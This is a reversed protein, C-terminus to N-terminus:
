QFLSATEHPAYGDVIKVSGLFPTLIVSMEQGDEKGLHIITPEIYGNKNFRIGMGRNSSTGGFWSWVERVTVTDDLHLRNEENVIIERTGSSSQEDPEMVFLREDPKYILVFPTQHQRAMQASQHVLGVLKRVTTKLQDDYLFSGIQPVAFSAVLAILTMVVILEVLTYGRDHSLPWM